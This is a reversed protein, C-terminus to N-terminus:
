GRGVGTGDGSGGRRAPRDLMIIPIASEERWGARWAGMGDEDRLKLDLVVLNSWTM